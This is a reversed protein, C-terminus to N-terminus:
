GIAADPRSGFRMRWYVLHKPCGRRAEGEGIVDLRAELVAGSGEALREIGFLDAPLTLAEILLPTRDLRLAIDVRWLRALDRGLPLVEPGGPGAFGAAFSVSAQYRRDVLVISAAERHLATGFAPLPPLGLALAAGGGLKILSRRDLATTM